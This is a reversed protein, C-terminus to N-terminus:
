FSKGTKIEEINEYAHDLVCDPMILSVQRHEVEGVRSTYQIEFANRSFHPMSRRFISLVSQAAM